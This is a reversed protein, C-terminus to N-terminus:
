SRVAEAALDVVVDDDGASNALTGLWENWDLRWASIAVAKDQENLGSYKLSNYSLVKIAFLDLNWAVCAEWFDHSVGQYGYIAPDDPNLTVPIGMALYAQGPHERLDAVYGLLQNSIPCLEVCLGADDFRQALGPTKFLELGHGVRGPQPTTGGVAMTNMLFADVMNNNFGDVAPVAGTADRQRYNPPLASEGDHFFMPPMDAGLEEFADVLADLFFLTTKGRDEESFLDFGIVPSDPQAAMARGVAIIDDRVKTNLDTATKGRGPTRPESYIVRLTLRDQFKAAAALVDTVFGDTPSEQLDWWSRLEIHSINDVEVLYRFAREYYKKRLASVAMLPGIRMFIPQFLDWKDGIYDQDRPTLTLTSLIQFKQTPWVSSLAVYGPGVDAATGLKFLEWPQAYRRLREHIYFRKEGEVYAAADDLLAEYDGMAGPHIHQIGGKPMAQLFRFLATGEIEERGDVFWHAEIPEDYYGLRHIVRGRLEELTENAQEDAQTWGIEKVIASGFAPHFFSKLLGRRAAAYAANPDMCRAGTIEVEQDAKGDRDAALTISGSFVPAGAADLSFTIDGNRILIRGLDQNGFGIHNESSDFELRTGALEVQAGSHAVVLPSFMDAWGDVKTVYVGAWPELDTQM